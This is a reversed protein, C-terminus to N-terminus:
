LRTSKLGDPQKLIRTFGELGYGEQEKERGEMADCSMLEVMGGRCWHTM